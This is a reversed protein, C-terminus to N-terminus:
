WRSLLYGDPSTTTYGAQLGRHLQIQVAHKNTITTFDIRNRVEEFTANIIYGPMAHSPRTALSMSHCSDDLLGSCYFTGRRYEFWWIARAKVIRIFLKASGLTHWKLSHVQHNFCMRAYIPSQNRFKLVQDIFTAIREPM